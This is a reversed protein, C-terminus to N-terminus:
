PRDAPSASAPTTADRALTVRSVLAWGSAEDVLAASEATSGGTAGLPIILRASQEDTTGRWAPPLPRQDSRRWALARTDGDVSRCYWGDVGEALHLFCDGDADIKLRAWIHGLEDVAEHEGASVPKGEWWELEARQGSLENEHLAAGSVERWLLSHGAVGVMFGWRARLNAFVAPLQARREALAKAREAALTNATGARVPQTPLIADGLLRVRWASAEVEVSTWGVSPVEPKSRPATSDTAFAVSPIAEHKANMESPPPKHDESEKPASDGPASTDSRDNRAFGPSERKDDAGPSKTPHKEMASENEKESLHSSTKPGVPPPPPPPTIPVGVETQVPAAPANGAAIAGQTGSVGAPAAQEVSSTSGDGGHAAIAAPMAGVGTTTAPMAGSATGPALAAPALSSQSPAFVKEELPPKDKVIADVRAREAEPYETATKPSTPRRTDSSTREAERSRIAPASPQASAGAPAAATAVRPGSYAAEANRPASVERHSWWRWGTWGGGALLFLLLALVIWRRTRGSPEQAQAGATAPEHAERAPADPYSPVAATAVGWSHLRLGADTAAVFTSFQQDPMAVVRAVWGDMASAIQGISAQGRANGGAGKGDRAYDLFDAQDEALRQRLARLEKGTPAKEGDERWSWAVIDAEARRQPPLLVNRFYPAILPWYQHVVRQDIRLIAAPDRGWHVEAKVQRSKGNEAM